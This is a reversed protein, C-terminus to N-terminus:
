GLLCLVCEDELPGDRGVTGLRQFSCVSRFRASSEPLGEISRHRPDTPGGNQVGQRRENQVCFTPRERIVHKSM